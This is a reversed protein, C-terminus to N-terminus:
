PGSSRQSWSPRKDTLNTTHLILCDLHRLNKCKVLNELTSAATEDSLQKSLDRVELQHTRPSSESSDPLIIHRSFVATAM